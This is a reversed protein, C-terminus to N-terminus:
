DLIRGLNGAADNMKRGTARATKCCEFVPRRSAGSNDLVEQVRATCGLRRRGRERRRATRSLETECGHAVRFIRQTQPEAVAVRATIGVITPNYVNLLPVRVQSCVDQNGLFLGHRHLNLTNLDIILAVRGTAAIEGIGWARVSRDDVSRLGVCRRREGERLGVSARERRELAGGCQEIGGIGRGSPDDGAEDWLKGDYYLLELGLGRNTRRSTTSPEDSIVARERM